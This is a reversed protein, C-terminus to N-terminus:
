DKKRVLGKDFTIQQLTSVEIGKLAYVQNASFRKQDEKKLGLLRTAEDIKEWSSAEIELYPNLEPYFDLDFETGDKMWHIRKKEAYHKEVFGIDRLIAAMKNFDSVHVEVEKMGKDNSGKERSMGLRQKYSLSIHGNGEDRLRIWAGQKDLRWDPYDFTRWRQFYEGDKEAGIKELKKQIQAPDVDLFKVEVEEYGM